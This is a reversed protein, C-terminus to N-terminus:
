KRIVLGLERRWYLFAGLLIFPLAQLVFHLLFLEGMFSFEVLEGGAIKHSIEFEQLPAVFLLVVKGIWFGAYKSADAL